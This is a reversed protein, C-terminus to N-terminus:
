PRVVPIDAHIRVRRALMFGFNRSAGLRRRHERRCPQRGGRRNFELFYQYPL